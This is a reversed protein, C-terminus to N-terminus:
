SIAVKEMRDRQILFHKFKELNCRVKYAQTGWIKFKEWGKHFQGRSQQDRVAGQEPEHVAALEEAGARQM